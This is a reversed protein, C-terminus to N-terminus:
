FFFFFFFSLENKKTDDVTKKYLTLLLNTTLGNFALTGEMYFSTLQNSQSTLDISQNRNSPLVSM